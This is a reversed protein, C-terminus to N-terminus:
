AIDPLATLDFTVRNISTMNGIETSVKELVDFGPFPGNLCVVPTYTRQDGGVGVSFANPLLEATLGYKEAIEQVSRLVEEPVDKQQM